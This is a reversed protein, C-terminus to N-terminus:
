CVGEDGHDVLYILVDTIAQGESHGLKGGGTINEVTPVWGGCSQEASLYEISDDTLGQTKLSEYAM